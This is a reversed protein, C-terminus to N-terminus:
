PGLLAHSLMQWVLSAFDFILDHNLFSLRSSFM